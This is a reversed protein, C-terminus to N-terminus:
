EVEPTYIYKCRVAFATTSTKGTGPMGLVLAYDNAAVSKVVAMRQDGNMTKWEERLKTPECGPPFWFRDASSSSSSSPASQSQSQSASTQSLLSPKSEFIARWSEEEAAAAAEAAAARGGWGGGGGFASGVHQQQHEQQARADKHLRRLRGFESRGLRFTPAELRAVLRRVKVSEDTLMRRKLEIEPNKGSQSGGSLATMSTGGRGGGGSGGGGGGGGGVGSGSQGRREREDLEHLNADATMLQVLVRKSNTTGATVDEKDIRFLVGETRTGNGSGSGSGDILRLPQNADITISQADMSSVTGSLLKVGSDTVSRGGSAAGDSASGAMMRSVHVLDGVEV